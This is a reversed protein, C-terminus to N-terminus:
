LKLLTLNPLLIVTAYPLQLGQAWWESCCQLQQLLAAEPHNHRGYALQWFMHWNYGRSGKHLNTVCDDEVKQWWTLL